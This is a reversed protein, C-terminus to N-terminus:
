REIGRMNLNGHQTELRKDHEPSIPPRPPEPLRRAKVVEAPTRTPMRAKLLEFASERAM